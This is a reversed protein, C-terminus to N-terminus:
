YTRLQWMCITQTYHRVTRTSQRPGDAQVFWFKHLITAHNHEWLVTWSSHHVTRKLFRVREISSISQGYSMGFQGNTHSRFVYPHFCSTWIRGSRCWICYIGFTYHIKRSFVSNTFFWSFRTFDPDSVTPATEQSYKPKTQCLPPMAWTLYIWPPNPNIGKGGGLGWGGPSKLESFGTAWNSTLKILKPNAPQQLAVIIHAHMSKLM